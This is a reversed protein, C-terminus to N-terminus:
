FPVHNVFDPSPMIHARESETWGLQPYLWSWWLHRTHQDRYRFILPLIAIPFFAVVPNRSWAVDPQRKCVNDFFFLINYDKNQDTKIAKQSVILSTLFGDSNWADWPRGVHGAIGEVDQAPTGQLYYWASHHPPRVQAAPFRTCCQGDPPGLDHSPPRSKSSRPRLPTNAAQQIRQLWAKPNAQQQLDLDGFILLSVM